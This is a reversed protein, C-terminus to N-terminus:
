DGKGGGNTGVDASSTTMVLMAMGYSAITVGHFLLYNYHWHRRSIFVAVVGVVSTLGLTTIGQLAVEETTGVNTIGYHEIM